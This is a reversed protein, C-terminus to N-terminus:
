LGIWEDPFLDPTNLNNWKKPYITFLSNKNLRAAWFSFTSNAIINAKCRSMLLMDLHSNSGSNATVYVPNPLRLNAKAWDIDDSFVFFVPNDMKIETINVANQYYAETCIGGYMKSFKPLLYDGRRVHLSVSNLACIDKLISRNEENLDFDRFKIEDIYKDVFKRDHYYGDFYIANEHYNDDTSKLGNVGIGNLKRCLWAMFDSYWYHPPLNVCFVKDLELGNHKKLWRKNYYGYVKDNPYKEELYRCFLYFFVQNGLGSSFHVIRM